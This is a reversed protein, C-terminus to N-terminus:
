YEPHRIEEPIEINKYRKAERDNVMFCVSVADRLRATLKGCEM